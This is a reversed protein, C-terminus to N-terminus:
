LGALKCLRTHVREAGSLSVSYFVPGLCNSGPAPKIRFASLRIKSIHIIENDKISSICIIVKDYSYYDLNGVAPVSSMPGYIRNYMGTYIHLIHEGIKKHFTLNKTQVNYDKNFSSIDLKIPPEAIDCLRNYIREVDKDKVNYFGDRTLSLHKSCFDIEFIKTEKDLKNKISLGINKHDKLDPEDDRDKMLFIYITYEGIIQFYCFGKYKTEYKEFDSIDM